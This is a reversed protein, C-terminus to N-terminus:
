LSAPRHVLQRGGPGRRARQSRIIRAHTGVEDGGQAHSVRVAELRVGRGHDRHDLGVAALDEGGVERRLGKLALGRGDGDHNAERVLLRQAPPVLGGLILRGLVESVVVARVGAQHNRVPGGRGGSGGAGLLALRALPGRWLALLGAALEFTVVLLVLTADLHRAVAGQVVERYPHIAATAVLGELSGPLSPLTYLLNVLAGGLFFVGVLTRGLTPWLVAPALFQAAVALGILLEAREM